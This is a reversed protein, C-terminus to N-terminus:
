SISKSHHKLFCPKLVPVTRSFIVISIWRNAFFLHNTDGFETMNRAYIQSGDAVVPSVTIESSPPSKVLCFCQEADRTHHHSLRQQNEILADEGDIRTRTLFELLESCRSPLACSSTTACRKDVIRVASLIRTKFVSM